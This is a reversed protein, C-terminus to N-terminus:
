NGGGCNKACTQPAHARLVPGLVRPMQKSVEFMAVQPGHNDRYSIRFFHRHKRIRVLGVGIAPLVGLHRTVEQTYEYSDISTYPISFNSSASAFTLSDNSATDLHGISGPRGSPVTGGCYRVQDNEVAVSPITLAMTLIATLLVRM